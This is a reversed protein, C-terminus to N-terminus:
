AEKICWGKHGKIKNQFINITKAEDRPKHCRLERVLPQVLDVAYSLRTGAVPGGPFERLWKKKLFKGVLFEFILSILYKLFSESLSKEM